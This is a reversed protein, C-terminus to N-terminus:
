GLAIEAKHELLWDELSKLRPNIERVRDLDRAAIFSDSADAYFQYM